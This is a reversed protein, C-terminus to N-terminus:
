FSQESGPEILHRWIFHGATSGSEGDRPKAGWEQEVKYLLVHDHMDIFKVRLVNFFKTSSENERRSAGFIYELNKHRSDLLNNM